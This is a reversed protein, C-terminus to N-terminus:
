GTRGYTSSVLQCRTIGLLHVRVPESREVGRPRTDLLVDHEHSGSKSGVQNCDFYNTKMEPM